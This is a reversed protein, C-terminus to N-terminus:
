ETKAHDKVDNIIRAWHRCVTVRKHECEFRLSNYMYETGNKMGCQHSSVAGGLESARIAM